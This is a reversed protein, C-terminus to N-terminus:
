PKAGGGDRPRPDPAPSRRKPEEPPPAGDYGKWTHRKKRVPPKEPEVTRYVYRWQWPPMPNEAKWLGREADHAEDELAFWRKCPDDRKCFTRYVWAWGARIQEENAIKDGVHIIGVTRGHFDATTVEVTVVKGLLLETLAAKSEPGADQAKEPADLGYFRVRLREGLYEVDITDGDLVELVTADWVLKKKGGARDRAAAPPAAVLLAALACGVGVFARFGPM